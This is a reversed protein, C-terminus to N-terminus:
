RAWISVEGIYGDIEEFYEHMGMKDAIHQMTENPRVMHVDFGMQVWQGILWKTRGEGPYRSCIYHIFLRGDTYIEYWGYFLDERFGMIEALKDGSELKFGRDIM